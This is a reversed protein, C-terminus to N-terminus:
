ATGRCEYNGVAINIPCDYVLAAKDISPFGAPWGAPQEFAAGLEPLAAEVDGPFLASADMHKVFVPRTLFGAAEGMKWAESDTSFAATIVPEGKPEFFLIYFMQDKAASLFFLERHAFMGAEPPYAAPAGPQFYPSNAALWADYAPIGHAVLRVRLESHHPRGFHIGFISSPMTTALLVLTAATTGVLGIAVAVPRRSSTSSLV